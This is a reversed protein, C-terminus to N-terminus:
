LTKENKHRSLVSRMARYVIIGVVAVVAAFFIEIATRQGSEYEVGLVNAVWPGYADTLKHGFCICVLFLVFQWGLSLQGLERRWDSRENETM